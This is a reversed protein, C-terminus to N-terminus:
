IADEIEDMLQDSNKGKVFQWPRHAHLACEVVSCDRVSQKTGADAGAGCCQWCHAAIAKMLSNPAKKAREVPDLHDTRILQGNLRMERLKAQAKQLSTLVETSM